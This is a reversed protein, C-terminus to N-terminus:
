EVEELDLEGPGDDLIDDIAGCVGDIICHATGRRGFPTAGDGAMGVVGRECGEDGFDESTCLDGDWGEQHGEYVDVAGLWVKLDGELFPSTLADEKPSEYGCVFVKIIGSEFVHLPRVASANKSFAVDAADLALKEM